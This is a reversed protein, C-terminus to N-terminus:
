RANVVQELRRLRERERKLREMLQGERGLAAAKSERLQRGAAAVAEDKASQAQAREQPPLESEYLEKTWSQLEEVQSQLERDIRAIERRADEVAAELAAVKVRQDDVFEAYVERKFSRLEDALESTSPVGPVCMAFLLVTQAFYM